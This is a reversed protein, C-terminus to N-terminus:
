FDNLLESVFVLEIGQEELIPLTDALAKATNLGQPGVHGIGIAYGNQRALEALKYIQKTISAYDYRSDLFIDRKAYKVGAEQAAERCVSASNTRSDLFLMEKDHLFDMVLRMKEKNKTILSGMHNNMGVANPIQGFAINLNNNIEEKSMRNKIAGPGLWSTNGNEPEMPMHILVEFGSRDARLSHETTNEMNPMIALTLPYQQLAFIEEVGKNYSTGVDDIVIAVKPKETALVQLAAPMESDKARDTFYDALGRSIALAVAKQYDAKVLLERERSNSLYGMEVIVSPMTTKKLIYYDGPKATRKTMNPISRLHEQISRALLLSYPDAPNYFAEAGSYSGRQTANVHLSVFVDAQLDEAMQLRFNLDSRKKTQNGRQEKPLVYDRDSERSMTIEAGSKVLIEHILQGVRLNIDEEFIKQRTDSCGPDEGGHGPDIFIKKNVFCLPGFIEGLTSTFVEQENCTCTLVLAVLLLFIILLTKKHIILIILNRM